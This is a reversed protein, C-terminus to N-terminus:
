EEIPVIDNESINFGKRIYMIYNRADWLLEVLDSEDEPLGAHMLDHWEMYLRRAIDADSNRNEQFQPNYM